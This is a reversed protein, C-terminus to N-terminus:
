GRKVAGGVSHVPVKPLSEKQNTIHPSLAMELLKQWGASDNSYM